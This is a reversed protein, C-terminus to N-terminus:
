KWGRAGSYCRVLHEIAQNVTMREYVLLHAGFIDVRHYHHKRISPRPPIEDPNDPWHIVRDCEAIDLGGAESHITEMHGDRPGGILLCNIATM